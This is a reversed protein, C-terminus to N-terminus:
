DADLCLKFAIGGCNCCNFSGCYLKRRRSYIPSSNECNNQAGRLEQLCSQLAPRLKGEVGWNLCPKYQKLLMKQTREASIGAKAFGAWVATAKGASAVQCRNQHAPPGSEEMAAAKALPQQWLVPSSSPLHLRVCMPLM